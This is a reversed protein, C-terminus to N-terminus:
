GTIRATAGNLHLTLMPAITGGFPRDDHDGQDVFSAVRGDDLVLWSYAQM